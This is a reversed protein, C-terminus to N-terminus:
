RYPVNGFYKSSNITQSVGGVWLVTRHLLQPCEWCDPDVFVSVAKMKKATARRFVTPRALKPVPM